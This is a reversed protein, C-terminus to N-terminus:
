SNFVVITGFVSSYIASGSYDFGVFDLYSTVIGDQVLLQKPWQGPAIGLESADVSGDNLIERTVKVM